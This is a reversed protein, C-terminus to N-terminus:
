ASPEPSKAPKSLGSLSTGPSPKDRAFFDELEAALADFEGDGAFPELAERIRSFRVGNVAFLKVIIVMQQLWPVRGLVRSLNRARGGDRDIIDLPLPNGAADTVGEWSIVKEMVLPGAGAVGTRALAEVARSREDADMYTHILKFSGGEFNVELPDPRANLDVAFSM